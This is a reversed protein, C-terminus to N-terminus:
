KRNSLIDKAVAVINKAEEPSLMLTVAPENPANSDVMRLANVTHNPGIADLQRKAHETPIFVPVLKGDDAKRYSQGSVKILEEM